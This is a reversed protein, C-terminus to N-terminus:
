GPVVALKVLPVVAVLEVERLVNIRVIVFGVTFFFHEPIDKFCRGGRVRMGLSLLENALNGSGVATEIEFFETM